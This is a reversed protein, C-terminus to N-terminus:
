RCLVMRWRTQPSTVFHHALCSCFTLALTAFIYARLKEMKKKIGLGAIWSTCVGRRPESLWTKYNVIAVTLHLQNPFVCAASAISFARPRLPPFLDFLYELPINGRTGPFDHLVEIATRRPRNAYSYLDEQGEATDFERLKEREHDLATFFALM